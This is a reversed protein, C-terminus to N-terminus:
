VTNKVCLKLSKFVHNVPPPLPVTGHLCEKRLNQAGRVFVSLLDFEHPHASGEALQGARNVCDTYQLGIAMDLCTKGCLELDVPHCAEGRAVSGILKFGLSEHRTDALDPVPWLGFSLETRVACPECCPLNMELGRM